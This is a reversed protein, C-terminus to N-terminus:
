VEEKVISSRFEELIRLFQGEADVRSVMGRELYGAVKSLHKYAEVMENVYKDM